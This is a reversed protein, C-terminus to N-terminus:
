TIRIHSFFPVADGTLYRETPAASSILTAFHQEREFNVALAIAQNYTLYALATPYDNRSGVLAM